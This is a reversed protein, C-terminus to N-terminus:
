HKIGKINQIQMKLFFIQLNLHSFPFQANIIFICLISNLFFYLAKM